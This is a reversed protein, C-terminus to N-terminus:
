IGSARDHSGIARAVRARLQRQSSGQVRPSQPVADVRDELRTEATSSVHGKARPADSHEYVPAEPVAARSMRGVWRVVGLVPPRLELADHRAVALVAHCQDSGAPRDHADPLMLVRELGCVAYLSEYVREIAAPSAFDEDGPRASTFDSASYARAM